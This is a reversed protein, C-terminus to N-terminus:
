QKIQDNLDHYSTLLDLYLQREKEKQEVLLKSLENESKVINMEINAIEKILNQNQQKASLLEVKSKDIEFEYTALLDKNLTSNKDFWKESINLNETSIELSKKTEELIKNNWMIDDQLSIQQQEYVNGKSYDAVSKLSSLFSYYKLNLEGLSVKEPFLSVAYELSDQKSINYIKLLSAIEIVDVTKASNQIVGIYDGEVVCDQAKFSLIELRGSIRSSLKVPTTTSNIKIQGTVVDPYKIAWGFVFFLLAFFIVAISVWKSFATPMKDIIDSVEESKTKNNKDKLKMKM